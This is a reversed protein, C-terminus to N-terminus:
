VARSWRMGIYLGLGVVVVLLQNDPQMIAVTTAGIMAVLFAIKDSKNEEPPLECYEDKWM